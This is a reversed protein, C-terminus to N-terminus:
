LFYTFYQRDLCYKRNVSVAPGSILFRESNQCESVALVTVVTSMDSM